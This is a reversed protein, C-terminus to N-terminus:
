ISILVEVNQLFKNTIIRNTLTVSNTGMILLM